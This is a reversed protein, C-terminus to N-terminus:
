RDQLTNWRVFVYFPILTSMSKGEEMQDSSWQCSGIEDLFTIFVGLVECESNRWFNEWWSRLLTSCVRLTRSNQEWNRGLIFPPKWRGFCLFDGYWYMQRAHTWQSHQKPQLREWMRGWASFYTAWTIIEEHIGHKGIRNIFSCNENLEQLWFIKEWWTSNPKSERAGTEQQSKSFKRTSESSSTRNRSKHWPAGTAQNSKRSRKKWRCVGSQSSIGFKTFLNRREQAWARAVSMKQKRRQLAKMRLRRRAEKRCQTKSELRILITPFFTALIAALICRAVWLISFVWFTMGSM